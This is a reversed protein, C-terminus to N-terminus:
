FISCSCGCNTKEKNNKDNNEEINKSNEDDKPIIIVTQLPEENNNGAFKVSKKQEFNQSVATSERKLNSKKIRKPSLIEKDYIFIDESRMKNDNIQENNKLNILNIENQLFLRRNIPSKIRKNKNNQENEKQTKFDIYSMESNGVKIKLQPIKSNSNKHFTNSKKIHNLSLSEENSM